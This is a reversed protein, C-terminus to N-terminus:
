HPSLDRVSRREGAHVRRGRERLSLKHVARLGAVFVAGQEPVWVAYLGEFDVPLSARVQGSPDILQARGDKMSFLMSPVEKVSFPGEDPTKPVSTCGLIAVALVYLFFTRM